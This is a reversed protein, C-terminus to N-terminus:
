EGSIPGALRRSESIVKGIIPSSLAIQRPFVAYLRGTEDVFFKFGISSADIDYHRNLTRDTLWKLLLSQQTSAKRIYMGELITIPLNSYMSAVSASSSESFGDEKSVIGVINISDKHTSAFVSVEQFLSDSPQLPLVVFVIKKGGLSSIALSDGSLTKVKLDMVRVQGVAVISTLFFM